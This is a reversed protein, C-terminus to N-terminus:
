ARDDRERVNQKHSEILDRMREWDDMHTLDKKLAAYFILLPLVMIAALPLNLTIGQSGSAILFMIQILLPHFGAVLTIAKNRHLTSLVAIMLSSVILSQFITDQHQVLYNVWGM